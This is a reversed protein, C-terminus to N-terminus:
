RCRRPYFSRGGETRARSCRRRNAGARGASGWACSGRRCLTTSRPAEPDGRAPPRRQRRSAFLAPGTRIGGHPRADGGGSRRSHSRRKGWARRLGTAGSPAAVIRSASGWGRGLWRKGRIRRCGCPVPRGTRRLRVSREGRSPERLACRAARFGDREPAEARLCPETSAPPSRVAREAASPARWRRPRRARAGASCPGPGARDARGHLGTRGASRAELHARGARDGVGTVSLRMRGRPARPPGAWRSAATASGSEAASARPSARAPEGPRASASSTAGRVAPSERADGRAAGERPRRDRGM